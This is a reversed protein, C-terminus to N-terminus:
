KEDIQNELRNKEAFIKLFLLKLALVGFNRIICIQLQIELWITSKKRKSFAYIKLRLVYFTEELGRSCKKKLRQYNQYKKLPQCVKVVYRCYKKKSKKSKSLYSIYLFHKKLILM